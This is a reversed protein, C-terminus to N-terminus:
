KTRTQYKLQYYSDSAKRYEELTTEINRGIRLARFFEERAFEYRVQRSIQETM